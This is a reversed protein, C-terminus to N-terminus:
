MVVVDKQKDGLNSTNFEFIASFKWVCTSYIIRNDINWGSADEHWRGSRSTFYIRTRSVFPLIKVLTLMLSSVKKSSILLGTVAALVAPPPNAELGISVTQM